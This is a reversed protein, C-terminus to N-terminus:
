LGLARARTALIDPDAVAVLPVSRPSQALMLTLDPGIGAPEGPTLAIPVSM